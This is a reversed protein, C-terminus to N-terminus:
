TQRNNYSLHLDSWIKHGIYASIWTIGFPEGVKEQWQVHIGLFIKSHNLMKRCSERDKTINGQGKSKSGKKGTATKACENGAVYCGADVAPKGRFSHLTPEPWNRSPLLSTAGLPLFYFHFKEHTRFILTKVWLCIFHWKLINVGTQFAYTIKKMHKKELPLSEVCVCVSVCLCVCVLSLPSQLCGKQDHMVSSM